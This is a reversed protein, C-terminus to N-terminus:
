QTERNPNQSPVVEIEPTRADRDRLENERDRDDTEDDAEDPHDDIGKQNGTPHAVLVILQRGLQTGSELGRGPWDLLPTPWRRRVCRSSTPPSHSRHAPARRCSQSM